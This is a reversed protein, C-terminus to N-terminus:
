ALNYKKQLKNNRKILEEFLLKAYKFYDQQDKRLRVRDPIYWGHIDDYQLGAAILTNKIANIRNRNVYYEEIENMTHRVGIM